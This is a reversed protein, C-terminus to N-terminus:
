VKFGFSINTLAQSTLITTHTGVNFQRQLSCHSNQLPNQRNSIFSQQEIKIGFLSSNLPYNYMCIPRQYTFSVRLLITGFEFSVNFIASDKVLAVLHCPIKQFLLPDRTLSFASLVCGKGQGKYLNRHYVLRSSLLRIIVFWSM